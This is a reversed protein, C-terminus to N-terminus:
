VSGSVDSCSSQGVVPGCPWVGERWCVLKDGHSCGWGEGELTNM